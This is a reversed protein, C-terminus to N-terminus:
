RGLQGLADRLPADSIRIAGGYPNDLELVLFLAGAVCAAGILLAVVVTPNPSALLGFGGFVIGLWFVLIILFGAPVSSESAQQRLIVRVRDLTTLLRLADSQLVREADTRPRLGRVAIGVAHFEETVSGARTKGLDEGWVRDIGAIVLKRLLVRAEGAEPGYAALTRDLLVVDAAIQELEDTKIDFSSKSSSIVLGLVLSALTAILGITLKLSDRSTDTVHDSPLRRRLLLGVVTGGFVIGFIVLALGLSSM